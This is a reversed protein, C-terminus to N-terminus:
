ISTPKEIEGQTNKRIITYRKGEIFFNRAQLPVYNLEKKLKFSVRSVPKNKKRPLQDPVTIYPNDPDIGVIGLGYNGVLSGQAEERVSDDAKNAIIMACICKDLGFIEASVGNFHAKDDEEIGKVELVTNEDEPCLYRMTLYENSSIFACHNDSDPPQETSPSPAQSNSNCAALSLVFSVTLITRTTINM